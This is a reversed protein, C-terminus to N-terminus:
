FCPLDRYKHAGVLQVFRFMIAVAVDKQIFAGNQLGSCKRFQLFFVAVIQAALLAQLGDRDAEGVDFAAEV